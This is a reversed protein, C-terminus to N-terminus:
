GTGLLLATQCVEVKVICENKKGRQGVTIGILITACAQLLEIDIIFRM